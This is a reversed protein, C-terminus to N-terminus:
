INSVTNNQLKSILDEIIFYEPNVSEDHWELDKDWFGDCKDYLAIAYGYSIEVIMWRGEVDKIFDFALSQTQLKQAISFAIRIADKDFLEKEYKIAGSGSARFDGKRNYRRIGFCRNGVVILRTDYDNEPMFDQFYVYGKETGHMKEFTSPIILRGIGKIFSIIAAKNKDRKIQWLRHKLLNSRNKTSIGKGFAKKVLRKAETKTHLLMVNRSGSGGRLKFVKPFNVAKVWTLAEKKTYFVYSPVLPANISELLYKQAVKNDFHWNTRFDPFVVKGELELTYLISKAALVDKYNSHQHHWLLADCDNLDAIITSSYCDVIKYPVNKEICYQIWRESFTKEQHHIAIKM